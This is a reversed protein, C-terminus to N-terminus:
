LVESEETPVQSTSRPRQSRGREEFDSERPREKEPNRLAERNLQATLTSLMNRERSKSIDLDVLGNEGGQQVGLEQLYQRHQEERPNIPETQGSRYWYGQMDGELNGFAAFADSKSHWENGEPLRLQLVYFRNAQPETGFQMSSIVGIVEPEWCKPKFRERERKAITKLRKLDPTQLSPLSGWAVKYDSCKVSYRRACEPFEHNRSPLEVAMRGRMALRGLLRAHSIVFGGSKNPQEPDPIAILPDGLKTRWTPPGLFQGPFQGPPKEPSQSGFQTESEPTFYRAEHRSDQDVVMNRSLSRPRSKYQPESLSINDADIM